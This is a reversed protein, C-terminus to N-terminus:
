NATSDGRIDGPYGIGIGPSQGAPYRVPNRLDKFQVTFNLIVQVHLNAYSQATGIDISPNTNIVTPLLRTTTVNNNHKHYMVTLRNVQTPPSYDSLDTGSGTAYWTKAQTDDIVNESGKQGAMYGHITQIGSTNNTNFPGVVTTKVKPHFPFYNTSRNTYYHDKATDSGQVEELWSICNAATPHSQTNQIRITYECGIIGYYEYMKFWQRLNAAKILRSSHQHYPPTVYFPTLGSPNAPSPVGRSDLNSKLATIPGGGEINDWGLGTAPVVLSSSPSSIPTLMPLVPDNLTFITERATDVLLDGVTFQYQVPCSVTFREPFSYVPTRPILPTEKRNLMGPTDAALAMPEEMIPTDSDDDDPVIHVKNARFSSHIEDNAPRKGRSMTEAPTDQSSGQRNLFSWAATAASGVIGMASMSQYM